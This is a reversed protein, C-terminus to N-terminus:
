DDDEDEENEELEELDGDDLPDHDELGDEQDGDGDGDTETAASEELESPPEEATKGTALDIDCNPCVVQERGLDYFRTECEPCEHKKGLEVM